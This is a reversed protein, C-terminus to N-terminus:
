AGAKLGTIVWFDSSLASTTLYKEPMDFYGAQGWAAGWSNRVQWFPEGKIEKYGVVLVAHGGLLQEGKGPMPMVGTDAVEQSEFSEYVSFGIVVPRGLALVQKISVAARPVREYSLAEHKAEIARFAASPATRFNQIDYPLQAEPGVGITKLTKIGDRIQAGADSDVTGEMKRENYYIAL